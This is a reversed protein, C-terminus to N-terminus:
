SAMTTSGFSPAVTAGAARSYLARLRDTEVSWSANLAMQKGQRALRERLPASEILQKAGALMAEVDDPPYLLGNDQDQVLDRTGGADVALVPLGSSMAELTVLGFTETKSPMVFFDASAYATALADGELHGTFFCRTGAFIRKLPDVAPGTGVLVTQLQPYRDSLHKLQEISKEPALRGVFLAMVDGPRCGVRRRFEESRYRPDFCAGDVAGRWLGVNRVGQNVLLDRFHTSPCLNLQARNFVLRFAPKLLRVLPGLRYLPMYSHYDTHYSTVTAYGLLRSAFIGWVGLVAPGVAHVVDPRFKMLETVIRPSPFTFSLEPYPPFKVGKLRVVRYGFYNEVSSEPAFILVEDGCARFHQLIHVLTNTIGDVKPRFVETFLAIKM